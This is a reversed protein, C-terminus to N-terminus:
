KGRHLGEGEEGVLTSICPHPFPDGRKLILPQFDDAVGEMAFAVLDVRLRRPFVDMEAGGVVTAVELAQPGENSAEANQPPMPNREAFARRDIHDVRVVRHEREDSSEKAPFPTWEYQLKRVDLRHLVSYLRTRTFGLYAASDTLSLLVPLHKM